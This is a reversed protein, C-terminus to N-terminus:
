CQGDAHPKENMVAVIPMGVVEHLAHFCDDVMDGGSADVFFEELADDGAVHCVLVIGFGEFEFDDMCDIVLWDADVFSLNNGFHFCGSRMSIRWVFHPFHTDHLNYM